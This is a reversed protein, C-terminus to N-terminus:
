SMGCRMPEPPPPPPTYVFCEPVPGLDLGPFFIPLGENWYDRAFRRGATQLHAILAERTLQGTLGLPSTPPQDLRARVRSLVRELRLRPRLVLRLWRAQDVDDLMHVSAPPVGAMLRGCEGPWELRGWPVIRPDAGSRMLLAFVQEHGRMGATGIMLKTVRAGLGLLWEVTAVHNEKCAALLAADNDAHPDAGAAVLVKARALSGSMCALYVLRGRYAHVNAGAALLREVLTTSQGAGDVARILAEDDRHHVDVGAALLEDM